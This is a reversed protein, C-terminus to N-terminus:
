VLCTRLESVLPIYVIYEPKRPYPKALRIHKGLVIQDICPCILKFPLYYDVYIIYIQRLGDNTTFCGQKGLYIVNECIESGELDPYCSVEDRSNPGSILIIFLM